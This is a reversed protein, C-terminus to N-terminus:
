ADCGSQMWEEVAQQQQPDAACAFLHQAHRGYVAKAEINAPPLGQAFEFCHMGALGFLQQAATLNGIHAQLEAEEALHQFEFHSM